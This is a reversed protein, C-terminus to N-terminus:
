SSFLIVPQKFEEITSQYIYLRFNSINFCKFHKFCLKLNKLGSTKFAVLKFSSVFSDKLIKTM